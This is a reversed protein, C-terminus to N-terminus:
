FEIWLLTIDDWTVKYGASTIETIILRQLAELEEDPIGGDLQLDSLRVSTQSHGLNVARSIAEIARRRIENPIGDRAM